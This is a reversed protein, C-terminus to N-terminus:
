LCRSDTATPTEIPRKNHMMSIGASEAHPILSVAGEAASQLTAPLGTSESMDRALTSFRDWLDRDDM